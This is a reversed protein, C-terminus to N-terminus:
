KQADRRRTSKSDEKTRQLLSLEAEDRTRGVVGMYIMVLTEPLLVKSVYDFYKSHKYCFMSTLADMITDRQEESFQGFQVQFALDGKLRGGKKYDEHRRCYKKGEFIRRLESAHQWVLQATQDLTLDEIASVDIIVPPKDEIKIPELPSSGPEEDLDELVGTPLKSTTKLSQQSNNKKEPKRTKRKFAGSTTSNAKKKKPGLREREKTEFKRVMEVNSNPLCPDQDDSFDSGKRKEVNRRAKPTEFDWDEDAIHASDSSTEKKSDRSANLRTTKQRKTYTKKVQRALLPGSDCGNSDSESNSRARKLNTGDTMKADSQNCEMVYEDSNMCNLNNDRKVECANMKERESTRNVVHECADASSNSVSETECADATLEQKKEPDLYESKLPDAVKRKTTKEVCSNKENDELSKISFADEGDKVKLSHGAVQKEEKYSTLSEENHLALNDPVDEVWHIQQEKRQSRGVENGHGRASEDQLKSSLVNRSSPTTSLLSDIKENSDIKKNMHKLVARKKQTSYSVDAADKNFYKSKTSRSSREEQNRQIIGSQILHQDLPALKVFVELKESFLNLMEYGGGSYEGEKIAKREVDTCTEKKSRILVTQKYKRRKTFQYNILLEPDPLTETKRYDSTRGTKKKSKEPPALVRALIVDELKSILRFLHQDTFWKYSNCKNEKSTQKLCEPHVYIEVTVVTRGLVNAFITKKM